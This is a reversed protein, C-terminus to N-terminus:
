SRSRRAETWPVAATPDRRYEELRRNLEDALADDAPDETEPSLSELLENVLLVRETEPLRLAAELLAQRTTEM